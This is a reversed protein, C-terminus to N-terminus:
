EINMVCRAAILEETITLASMTIISYHYAPIIENHSYPCIMFTHELQDNHENHATQGNGKHEPLKTLDNAM